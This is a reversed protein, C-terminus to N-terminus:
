IIAQCRILSLSYDWGIITRDVSAYIRCQPSDLPSYISRHVPVSCGCDTRTTTIVNLGLCFPRWKGSSMKLYSKRFSFAHIEILMESFNTGLSGILLIEVNTWTIAQRRAPSLGNDSGIITLNGVCMHTLRGWHTISPRGSTQRWSMLSWWSLM